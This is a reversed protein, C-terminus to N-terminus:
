VVSSIVCLVRARTVEVTDFSDADTTHDFPGSRLLHDNSLALTNIWHGHDKLQRILKTAYTGSEEDISWVNITTDQSATYILGEGGWRVATVSQAHGCLTQVCNGNVTDWIKATGDKSASVLKRCGRGFTRHMPQWSLATVFKKHGRLVMRPKSRVAEDAAHPNWLCITTDHSGSAIQKGDPSWGICLVWHTHGVCTATPTQTLLDWIRLTKDGSGSALLTGDPSFSVSLVADTHGPLTSTCRTLARVRFVAQPQYVIELTTESSLQRKAMFDKLNGVVEDGRVFFSYPLAEENSVRDVRTLRLYFSQWANAVIYRM